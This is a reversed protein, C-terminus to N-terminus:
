SVSRLILPRILVSDTTPYSQITCPALLTLLRSLQEQKQGQCHCQGQGQSRAQVQVKGQAKVQDQVQKDQDNNMNMNMNMKMKKNEQGLLNCPLSGGREIGYKCPTRWVTGQCRKFELARTDDIISSVQKPRHSKLLGFEEIELLVKYLFAKWAEYVKQNSIHHQLLERGDTLEPLTKIRYEQAEDEAPSDSECGKNGKQLRAKNMNM